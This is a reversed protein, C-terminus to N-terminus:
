RPRRGPRNRRSAAFAAIALATLWADARASGRPSAACGGSWDGDADLADGGGEASGAGAGNGGESPGPGEGPGPTFETGLEYAGVDPPGSLPRGYPQLDNNKVRNPPVCNPTTWGNPIEFGVPGMGDVGQDVLASGEQPVFTADDIGPSGSLSEQLYGGADIGGAIFNRAGAIQQGNTWWADGDDLIALGGGDSALFVNDYFSASEIGHQLYFFRSASSSSVITNYAFRFRGDTGYEEKDSGMRSVYWEGNQILVNGVVDADERALSPDQGDPPVLDLVHYVPSEIWNCYIETREARSKVDNGGNGDHIYSHQLRFVSGPYMTEDTAIYLQHEYEGQGCGYVESYEITLSGSESDTGLIGHDPCDHVIVDRITVDDAKHVICYDTAGTVEFSEFVFHSAHLVIGWEAGGSIIPRQGDVPIGRLIVKQDPTGSSDPRIHIDGSYTAGGDVEVVDGPLLSGELETIEHYPKDPGVQYTTALAPRALLLAFSSATFILAPRVFAM